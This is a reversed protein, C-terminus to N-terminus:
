GCGRPPVKLVQRQDAGVVDIGGAGAQGVNQGAIDAVVTQIAKAADVRHNATEAIVGIHHIHRTVNHGLPRHRCPYSRAQRPPNHGVAQRALVM